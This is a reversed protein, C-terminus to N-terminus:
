KETTELIEITREHSINMSPTGKYDKVLGKVCITKGLLAEEPRYSFNRLDASWISITFIQNPFKRDLNVFVAGSETKKTSVVKGCVTIKQNIFHAADYTNATNRPRQNVALPAVDALIGADRKEWESSVFHSELQEQQEKPLAPFFDLGTLREVSDVSVAYSQFPLNSAENPLVFGIARQEEGQLDLVVKYFYKPISLQNKGMKPLDPNLVPGTVVLLQETTAFVYARLWNELEAWSERNLEPRQPSMNSYFYSESIAKRSWRFDASPALHGRDYGSNWYDEKEATGTRILSDSRFDNTRSLNGAAIQPSIIHTVWAAQEHAEDYALILASHEAITWSPSIGQPLGPARLDNRIKELRLVELEQLLAARQSDLAAKQQELQAIRQKQAWFSLPLLLLIFITSIKTM